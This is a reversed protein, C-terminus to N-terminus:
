RAAVRLREAAESRVKVHRMVRRHIAHIVADSWVRWYTEPAMRVTYWSRGVLRTRGGPLRELTFQGRHNRVYGDLHPQRFGAYLTAERMPDPQSDIHFTLEEGPKWAEITELATGTNFECRRVGGVRGEDLTARIPYAVGARFVPDEPPGMEDVAAVQPFVREPPADIEIQTEVPPPSLAPLPAVHEVMVLLPLLLVAGAITGSTTREPIAKAATFGILSGLFAPAVLLPLAMALCVLGELAFLISVGLTIGIAVLTALAAGSFRADPRMRGYFAGTAFGSITPAGIMLAAGYERLIGVSVALSGLGVVAGLTGSIWTAAANSRPEAAIVIQKPGERYIPQPPLTVVVRGRSPAAAAVLFFLLNAFPVFFLLTLWPSLGADRLRRVTLIVGLAVFPVAVTALTAWYRLDESPRLLPADIPSVYFLVSYPKGHAHAVANDAAIKIASLTVGATVYPFRELPRTLLESM